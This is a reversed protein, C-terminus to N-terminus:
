VELSKKQLMQFNDPDPEVCIIQSEPFDNKMKIAFLGINAGGDIIILPKQTFRINYEDFLFVQYFTPVDSSSPRLSFSHKINLIQISESKEQLISFIFYTREM